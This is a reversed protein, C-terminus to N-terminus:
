HAMLVPIKAHHLVHETAGGLVMERWRAHGYAGMVLLDAGDAAARALLMEGAGHGASNAAQAEAHVGHRALHRCLDAAPIQGHADADGERPDVAIVDVREACVLLPLAADIARAAERSGNWAALVHRGVGHAPAQEPMMLVPKGSELVATEILGVESNGSAPDRRGMILLDCYRANVSVTHAPDGELCRWEASIGDADMCRMFAAEAQQAADMFMARQHRILDDGIQAEVYTPLPPIYLPYLGTVHAEHVTALAAAAAMRGDTDEASTVHVVIDKIPM